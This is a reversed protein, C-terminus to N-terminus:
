RILLFKKSVKENNQKLVVFYIGSALDNLNLIEQYHGPHWDTLKISKKKAGSTDYIEILAAGENKLSHEINITGYSISPLIKMKLGKIRVGTHSEEIGVFTGRAYKIGCVGGSCYYYSIHPSNNTDLELSIDRWAYGVSDFMM